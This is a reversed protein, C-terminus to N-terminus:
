HVHAPIKIRGPPTITAGEKPQRESLARQPSSAGEGGHVKTEIVTVLKRDLDWCSVGFSRRCDSSFRRPSVAHGHKASDAGIQVNFTQGTAINPAENEPIRFYVRLPNMQQTHFMEFSTNNATILDGVNVNRVTITGPFPAAIKQFAVEQQLFKLNATFAEVNAQNTAQNTAQTDSDMQSVVGQKFLQQFRVNNDKALQLNHQALTL